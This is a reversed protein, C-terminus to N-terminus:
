IVGEWLIEDANFIPGEKCARKLGNKTRVVCGLCAGIGCAMHEEMSVQCAISHRKAIKATEKMMDMPGCAYIVIDNRPVFHRLSRRPSQKTTAENKRAIVRLLLDTVFGKFGMSGDDTAFKVDCGLAKFEKEYLIESKTKAGILLTIRLGYDTIRLKQALFLLPAVGIGGAVLISLPYRKAYLTYDFGDGLPGIIDLHEGAKKQSLIETGSGIVEYLIEMCGGKVSHVSFPRRLLPQFGDSCRVMVFQGPKASKAISPAALSMRFVDQAVEENRMIKAKIQGTGM